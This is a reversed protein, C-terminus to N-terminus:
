LLERALAEIVPDLPPPSLDVDRSLAEVVAELAAVRGFQKDESAILHWPAHESSTHALMDEIAESYAERLEINRFDERGLKWQKLPEAVRERLRRKQEELSVHLFLKVVRIGDNTLLKEFANIEEYARRWDAKPTLKEVREVLVRGYWSRDFVAIECNEPMRMWFRQLYHQRLEKRSPAGIPWVEFGRPDLLETLRRITGGKGAADWGEFVVVGSRGQSWYALQIVRLQQQLAAIRKDYAKKGLKRGLDLEALRAPAAKRSM